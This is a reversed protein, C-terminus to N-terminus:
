ALAPPTPTRAVVDALETETLQRADQVLLRPIGNIVPFALGAAESVFESGVADYRLPTKSLPCALVALLDESPSCIQSNNNNNNNNNKNNDNSTNDTSTNTTTHLSQLGTNYDNNVVSRSLALIRLNPVLRSAHTTVSNVGRILLASM